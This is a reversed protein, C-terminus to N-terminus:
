KSFSSVQNGLFQQLLNMAMNENKKPEEIETKEDKTMNAASQLLASYNNFSQPLGFPMM